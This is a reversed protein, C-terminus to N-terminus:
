HTPGTYPGKEDKKWSSNGENEDDSVSSVSLDEWNQPHDPKRINTKTDHIKRKKVDDESSSM